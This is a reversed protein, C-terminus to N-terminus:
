TERDDKSFEPCCSGCGEYCDVCLQRDGIRVADYRGCMECVLNEWERRASKKTKQKKDDSM